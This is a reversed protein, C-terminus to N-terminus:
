SKVGTGGCRPCKTEIRIGTEGDLSEGDWIWGGDCTPCKDSDTLDSALSLRYAESQRQQRLRAQRLKQFADSTDSM